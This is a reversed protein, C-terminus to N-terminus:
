MDEISFKHKMKIQTSNRFDFKSDSSRDVIYYELYSIILYLM